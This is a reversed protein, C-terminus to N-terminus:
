STPIACGRAIWYHAGPYGPEVVPVDTEYYQFGSLTTRPGSVLGFREGLRADPTRARNPRDNGPAFVYLPARACVVSLLTSPPSGAPVPSPAVATTVVLGAAAAFRALM